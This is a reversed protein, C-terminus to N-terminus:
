YALSDVGSGAGRIEVIVRRPLCVAIDGPKELWGVRACLKDRCPSSFVRARTGDIEIEVHNVTMSAAAPENNVYVAAGGGISLRLLLLAGALAAAGLAILIDGRKM